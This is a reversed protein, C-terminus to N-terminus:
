VHARGIKLAALAAMLARGTRFKSVSDDAKTM